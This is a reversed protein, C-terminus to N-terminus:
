PETASLTDLILPELVEWVNELMRPQARANPHIGDAQMLGWDEAVGSLLRALWVVQEREAVERFLAQFRETYAAGYNPPLRNGVLLVRAGSAKGMRVLRTLNSGIEEFATGRLGDNAGLEIILVAPTRRKLLAPLHTLGGATTDGPRSANVVRHPYGLEGLRQELLWVWGSERPLGYGASLSDGLVLIVPEDEARSDAPFLLCALLFLHIMVASLRLSTEPAFPSLLYTLPGPPWKVMSWSSFRETCLPLARAM